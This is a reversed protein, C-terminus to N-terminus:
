PTSTAQVQPAGCFDVIQGMQNELLKYSQNTNQILPNFVTGIHQTLMNFIKHYSEDVQKRMSMLFTTNLMSMTHPVYNSGEPLLMMRSPNDMVSSSAPYPNYPPIVAITNYTYTSANSQLGVMMTIPMGYIYERNGMPLM